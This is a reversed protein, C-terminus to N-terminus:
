LILVKGGLLDQEVHGQGMKQMRVFEQAVPLDTREELFAAIASRYADHYERDAVYLKNACYVFPRLSPEATVLFYRYAGEGVGIARPNLFDDIAIIGGPALVRQALVLDSAVAAASHDGDVSIFGARRGGMADLLRSPTLDLSSATMLTLGELSGFLRTFTEVVEDRNSWQFTDIGLVAQATRRAKQFLVSLYKGKYVGIELMGSALGHSVQSNLLCCTLWASEDLCWGEVKPFTARIFEADAADILM